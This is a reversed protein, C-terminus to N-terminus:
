PIQAHKKAGFTVNKKRQGNKGLIVRFVGGDGVGVRLGSVGLSAQHFM